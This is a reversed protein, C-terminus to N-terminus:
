FILPVRVSEPPPKSYHLGQVRRYQWVGFVALAVILLGILLSTGDLKM